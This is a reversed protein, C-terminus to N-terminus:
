PLQVHSAREALYKELQAPYEKKHQETAPGAFVFPVANVDAISPKELYFWLEKGNQYFYATHDNAM